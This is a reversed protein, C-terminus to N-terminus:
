AEGGAPAPQPASPPVATVLDKPDKHAPKEALGGLWFILAVLSLFILVCVSIM